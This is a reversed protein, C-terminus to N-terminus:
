VLLLFDLATFEPATLALGWPEPISRRLPSGMMWEVSWGLTVACGVMVVACSVVVV